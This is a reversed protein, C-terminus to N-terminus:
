ISIMCIEIKGFNDYRRFSINKLDNCLLGANFHEVSLAM